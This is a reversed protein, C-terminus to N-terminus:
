SVVTTLGPNTVHMRRWEPLLTWSTTITASLKPVRAPPLPAPPWERGCHPWAVQRTRLPLHGEMYVGRPWASLTCTSRPSSPRTEQPLALLSGRAHPKRPLLDRGLCSTNGEFQVIRSKLMAVLPRSRGLRSCDQALGGVFQRQALMRASVPVTYLPDGDMLRTALFQQLGSPALPSRIPRGAASLERRPGCTTLGVELESIPYTCGPPIGAGRCIGAATVASATVALHIGLFLDASITVQLAAAAPTRAETMDWLVYPRRFVLVVFARPPPPPSVVRPGMPAVLVTSTGLALVVVLVFMIPTSPVRPVAELPGLPAVRKPRVVLDGHMSRRRELMHARISGPSNSDAHAFPGERTRHEMPGTPRCHSVVNILGSYLTVPLYVDRRAGRLELSSWRWLCIKLVLSWALIVLHTALSSGRWRSSRSWLKPDVPDPSAMPMTSKTPILAHARALTRWRPPAPPM